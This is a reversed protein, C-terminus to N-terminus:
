KYYKRSFETDSMVLLQILNIFAIIAPIFTWAFFLMLVGDVLNGLYFKHAGFGGLFLCLLVATTKSKKNM